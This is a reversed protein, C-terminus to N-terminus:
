DDQPYINELVEATAIQSELTHLERDESDEISYTSQKSTRLGFGGFSIPVYLPLQLPLITRGRFRPYHNKIPFSSARVRSCRKSTYFASTFHVVHAARSASNHRRSITGDM